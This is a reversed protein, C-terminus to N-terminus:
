HTAIFVVYVTIMKIYNGDSAAAVSCETTIPDDEDECNSVSPPMHKTGCGTVVSDTFFCLFNTLCVINKICKKRSIRGYIACLVFIYAKLTSKLLFM